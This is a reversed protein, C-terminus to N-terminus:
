YSQYSIMGGTFFNDKKLYLGFPMSNIATGMYKASGSNTNVPKGDENSWTNRTPSFFLELGGLKSAKAPNILPDALPDDFAISLNGM